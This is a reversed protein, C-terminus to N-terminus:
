KLGYANAFESLEEFSHFLIRVKDGEQTVLEIQCQYCEIGDRDLEYPETEDQYKGNVFIADVNKSTTLPKLKM